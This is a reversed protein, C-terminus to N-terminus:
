YTGKQGGNFRPRLAAVVLAEAALIIAPEDDPCEVLALTFHEKLFNVSEEREDVHEAREVAKRFVSQVYTSRLHQGIIRGNLGRKGLAVGVYAPSEDEKAKWLYIGRRLPVTAPDLKITDFADAALLLQCIRRVRSCTAEIASTKKV